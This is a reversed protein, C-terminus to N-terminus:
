SPFPRLFFYLKMDAQLPGTILSGKQFNHRWPFKSVAYVNKLATRFNKSLNMKEFLLAKFNEIGLGSPM